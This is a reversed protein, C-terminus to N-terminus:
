AAPASGSQRERWTSPPTGAASSACRIASRPRTARRSRRSSRSRSGSAPCITARIACTSTPASASRSCSPTPTRPSRLSRRAALRDRHRARLSASSPSCVPRRRCRSARADPVARDCLARPRGARAARRLRHRRLRACRARRRVRARGPGAGIVAVRLWNYPARRLPAGTALAADCAFRQLRGIEVPKRGEHHLVCAGECLLEVPCVRACTGGAPERRLHDAGGRGARRARARRRLGARRRRRPLGDVCPAVAYPGGCELCRDAEVLAEAAALPPTLEEFVPSSHEAVTAM